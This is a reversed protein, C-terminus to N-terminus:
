SVAGFVLTIRGTRALTGAKDRTRHTSTASDLESGDRPGAREIEPADVRPLMGLLKEKTDAFRPDAAVNSWEHPDHEHDYLEEDGNRYRIYRFRWDRIPTIAWATPPSSPLAASSAGNRWFRPCISETWPTHAPRLFDALRTLTPYLDLLSVPAPCM